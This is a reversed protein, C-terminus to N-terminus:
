HLFITISYNILINPPCLVVFGSKTRNGRCMYISIFYHAGFTWRAGAVRGPTVLGGVAAQVSASLETRRRSRGREGRDTWVCENASRVAPPPSPSSRFHVARRRRLAEGPSGNSFPITWTLLEGVGGERPEM